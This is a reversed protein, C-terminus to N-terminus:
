VKTLRYVIAVLNGDGLDQASVHVGDYTVRLFSCTIANLIHFFLTGFWLREQWQIVNICFWDIVFKSFYPLVLMVTNGNLFKYLIIRNKSIVYSNKPFWFSYFEYNVDDSVFRDSYFTSELECATVRKNTFTCIVSPFNCKPLNLLVLYLIYIYICHFTTKKNVEFTKLSAKYKSVQYKYYKKWNLDNKLILIDKLPHISSKASILHKQMSYCAKCLMTYHNFIYIYLWICNVIVRKEWLWHKCNCTTFKTNANNRSQHVISQKM